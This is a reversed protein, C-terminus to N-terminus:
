FHTQVWEVFDSHNEKSIKGRFADINLQREVTCFINDVPSPHLSCSSSRHQIGIIISVPMAVAEFNQSSNGDQM